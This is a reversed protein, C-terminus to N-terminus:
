GSPGPQAGRLSLHSAVIVGVWVLAIVILSWGVRRLTDPEPRTGLLGQRDVLAYIGLALVAAAFLGLIISGIIRRGAAILGLGPVATGAITFVVTRRFDDAPQCHRVEHARGTPAPSEIPSDGAGRDGSAPQDPM